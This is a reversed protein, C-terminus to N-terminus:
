GVVWRSTVRNRTVRAAKRECSLSSDFLVPLLGVASLGDENVLSQKNYRGAGREVTHRETTSRGSRLRELPMVIRVARTAAELNGTSVSGAPATQRYNAIDTNSWRVTLLTTFPITVM